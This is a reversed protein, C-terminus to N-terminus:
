PFRWFRDGRYLDGFFFKKEGGQSLGAKLLIGPFGWYKEKSALHV